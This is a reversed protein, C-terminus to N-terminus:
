RLVHKGTSIECVENLSTNFKYPLSKKARLSAFFAYPICPKVKAPKAGKRAVRM